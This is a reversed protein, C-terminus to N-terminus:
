QGRPHDRIRIMTATVATFADGCEHAHAQFVAAVLTAKATPILGALRLLIVGHSLRRQRHVLEGFDKDGTLLPCAGSKALDLVADDAISPALEAVALIEHGDARLREIIPRDVREDAVVKM